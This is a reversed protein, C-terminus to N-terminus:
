IKRIFDKCAQGIGKYYYETMDKNETNYSEKKFCKLTMVSSM